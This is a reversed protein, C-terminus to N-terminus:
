YNEAKLLTLLYDLEEDEKSKLFAKEREKYNLGLESNLFGLKKLRRPIDSSSEHVKILMRAEELLKEQATDFSEHIEKILTEEKKFINQLLAM